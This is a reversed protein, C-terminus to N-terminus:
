YTEGMSVEADGSHYLRQYCAFVDEAGGSARAVQLAHEWKEYDDNSVVVLGKGPVMKKSYDEVPVHYKLSIEKIRNQAAAREGQTTSTDNALAELKMLQDIVTDPANSGLSVQVRGDKVTDPFPHDSQVEMWQDFYCGYCIQLKNLDDGLFVQQNPNVEQATIPGCGNEHVMYVPVYIQGMRNLSGCLGCVQYSAGDAGRAQKRTMVPM